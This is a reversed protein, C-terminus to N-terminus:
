NLKLLQSFVWTERSSALVALFFRKTAMEVAELNLRGSKRRDQFIVELLRSLQQFKRFEAVERKAKGLAAPSPLAETVTKGELKYTLRDTPGSVKLDGM